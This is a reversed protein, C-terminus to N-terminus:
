DYHAGVGVRVRVRVGVGVRARVRVRSRPYWPPPALPALPKSVEGHPQQAEAGQVFPPPPPPPPPLPPPPPPPAEAEEEDLPPPPPPPPSPPHQQLPKSPQHPQPRSLPRTRPPGEQVVGPVERAAAAALSAPPTAPYLDLPSLPLPPM